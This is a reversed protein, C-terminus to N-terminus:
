SSRSKTTKRKKTEPGAKPGEVGEELKAQKFKEQKIKKEKGKSIPTAVSIAEVAGRKIPVSSSSGVILDYGLWTELFDQSYCVWGGKSAHWEAFGTKNSIATSVIGVTLLSLCRNSAPVSLINPNPVRKIKDSGVHDAFYKQVRRWYGAFGNSAFVGRQFNPVVFQPSRWSWYSFAQPRLFPDLSPLSPVVDKFVLPIDQDFGFQQLVRYVSYHTIGPAVQPPCQFGHLVLVLWTLWVAKM